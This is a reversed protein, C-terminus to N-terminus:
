EVNLDYTVETMFGDDQIGSFHLIHKGISLIDKKIMLWYGDCVSDTLGAKLGFLNNDPLAITFITSRVRYRDLDGCGITFDDFTAEKHIVDDIIGKCHFLLDQGSEHYETTSLWENIIPFFIDKEYPIICKRKKSGGLTGALFWVSGSQNQGCNKGTTAAVPNLNKTIALVWEYWRITWARYTRGAPEYPSPPYFPSKKPHDRSM